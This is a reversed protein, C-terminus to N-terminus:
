FQNQPITGGLKAASTDGEARLQLSRVAGLLNGHPKIGSQEAGRQVVDRHFGLPGFLHSEVRQPGGLGAVIRKQRENKGGFV